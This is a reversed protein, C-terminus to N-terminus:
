VMTPKPHITWPNLTTRLCPESRAEHIFGYRKHIFPAFPGLLYANGITFPTGGPISAKTYDRYQVRGFRICRSSEELERRLRGFSTQVAIGEDSKLYLKWMAASEGPNEHWCSIYTHRRFGPFTRRYNSKLIERDEENAVMENFAKLDSPSVSGEWTDSFRDARPFFLAGTDLLSVLKSIDMYRGSTLTM